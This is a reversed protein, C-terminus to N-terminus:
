PTERGKSPDKPAVPPKTTKPVVGKSTDKEKETVKAQAAEKPPSTCSPPIKALSSKDEDAKKSVYHGLPRFLM